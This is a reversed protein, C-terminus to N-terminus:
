DPCGPSPHECGWPREVGESDAGLSGLYQCNARVLYFFAQGSAPVAADSWCTGSTFSRECGLPQDAADSRSAEYEEAFLQPPWCFADADGPDDFGALGSIEDELGFGPEGACQNDQGDNVETAGPYTFENADDCDGECDALGDGDDDIEVAPM